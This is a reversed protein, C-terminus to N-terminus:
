MWNGILLYPSWYLPKWFKKQAILAKQAEQLAKAKSNGSKLQRYFETMVQGTSVDNVFWLTAIVSKVGAKVATGALGLAARDNGLATQCASLVLLDVHGCSKLLSELSDMTLKGDYTLLYSEKSTGGFVGHTALHVASYKCAQFENSFGTLTYDSDQILKDGGMIEKVTKLEDPVAPLPDFSQVAESLGSVLINGIEYPQNDVTTMAPTISIAFTEILFMNGDHLAAFPILRLVGDPAFVLTNIHTRNLENLIPAIALDYIVKGTTLFANSSRDQLQERFMLVTQRVEDGNCESSYQKIGEPTTLIVVFRDDFIVPYIIAIGESTQNLLAVDRIDQNGICADTFFEQLEAQKLSELIDRAEITKNEKLLMDALSFYVPRIERQFIGFTKQDAYLSSRIPTLTEVARTFWKLKDAKDSCLRGMQWQWLYLAEPKDQSAFLARRTLIIAEDIKGQKEKLWGRYGVAWLDNGSLCKESLEFINMHLALIGITLKQDPTAKEYAKELHSSDQSVCSLNILIDVEETECDLTLAQQYLSQANFLDGATTLLNGFLRMVKAKRCLDDTQSEKELITKAESYQGVSIFLDALELPDAQPNQKMLSLATNQFGANRYTKALDDAFVSQCLLIIVIAIKWFM